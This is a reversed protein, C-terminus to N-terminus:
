DEEKRKDTIKSSFDYILFLDSLYIRNDCIIGNEKGETIITKVFM